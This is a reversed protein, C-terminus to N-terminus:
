LTSPVYAQSISYNVRTAYRERVYYSIGAGRHLEHDGLSRCGDDEGFSKPHSLQIEEENSEAKSLPSVTTHVSICPFCYAAMAIKADM